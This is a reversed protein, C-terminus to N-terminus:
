ARRRRTQLAFRAEEDSFRALTGMRTEQLLALAREETLRQGHRLVNDVDSYPAWGEGNWVELAKRRQAPVWRRVLLGAVDFFSM